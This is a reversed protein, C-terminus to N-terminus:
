CIKGPPPKTLNLCSLHYAKPCSRRDCLVLEGGDGCRYCDDEHKKRAEIRRRKKKKKEEKSKKEQGPVSLAQFSVIWM